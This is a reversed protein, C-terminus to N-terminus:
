NKCVALSIISGDQIINGTVTQSGELQKGGYTLRQLSSCVGTTNEIFMKLSKMSTFSSWSVGYQTGQPTRVYLIIRVVLHLTSEKEINYDALTKSDELFRGNFILRQKDPDIGEEEKIKTKINKITDAADLILPIPNNKSSRIFIQCEKTPATLLTIISHKQINYDAM